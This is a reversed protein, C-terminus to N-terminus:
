KTLTISTSNVISYFQNLMASMSTNTSEQGNVVTVSEVLSLTIENENGSVTFTDKTNTTNYATSAEYEFTIKNGSLSYTGTYNSSTKSFSFSGDENLSLVTDIMGNMKYNWDGTVSFDLASSENGTNDSGNELMEFATYFGIELDCISLYKNDIYYKIKYHTGNLRTTFCKKNGEWEVLTMDLPNFPIENDELIISNEKFTIKEFGVYDIEYPSIEWSGLFYNYVEQKLEAQPDVTPVEPEPSPIPNEPNGTNPNPCGILCLALLSLLFLKLLKKM